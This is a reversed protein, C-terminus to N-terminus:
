PKASLLLVVKQVPRELESIEKIKVGRAVSRANSVKLKVKRVLGDDDLTTSTVLGLPWENRPSTDGVLLIVDGEQLNRQPKCWKERHQLNMLYEKKWASWFLECLHQVRRWRKRAYVDQVCFAGPPPLVSELRGHLLVNPTIPPEALPDNLSAPSLPRSNVIYAAEYFLTRLSSDDLRTNAFDVVSKLVNRVTRIQREWVGGHGSADPVNFKFEVQKSALFIELQETDLEAYGQKLENEGGIFNSGQDCRVTKVVGRLALFCRLANIFCDATLDDLLELHIARSYLCTFLLGYRKIESRAKKVKYPGFVDMGSKYFPPQVETREPPLNAMKQTEAPRRQKRCTVCNRIVEAAAKSGKQVYYGQTRLENMTLSRGGHNTRRHMYRIITETVHAKKPLIIPHRESRTLDRAKGIRGGVRIIGDEDLQPDLTRLSSVSSVVEGKKLVVIEGSFEKYQLWKIVLRSAKSQLAFRSLSKGSVKRLLVGLVNLITQWDSFRDLRDLLGTELPATASALCQAKVEPDGLVLVPDVVQGLPLDENVLFAPGKLWISKALEKASTGRSALDAPNVSTPVYQWQEVATYERIYQVRNSVFIHFRKADNAIYGLVVKSDTWFYEKSIPIELEKHLLQSIKVSTVAATLELRPVTVAKSPSVRSKSMILACEITGDKGRTRVYSCQGYGQLSADSFHHLQYEEVESEPKFCRPIKIMELQQVDTKWHEWRREMDADIPEDWSKKQKCLEQLIKRGPLIVPGAFGNPDYVSMVTSLIGRRTNPNDKLTIKFGFCDNQVDWRIGLTREIPLPELELDVESIAAAREAPPIAELVDKSNSIFKHLRIKGQKCVETAQHMLNKAKDVSPLSCLGDDMYLNRTLFKAGEPFSKEHSKALHKMGYNACGPSSAAGFLHVTLRYEVPQATFDGNPWWLFRLLDRHEEAVDFNYFMQEIDCALAIKDQRFRLLVGILSNMLDPGKLLNDNLCVGQCKASGDFVIRIKGPKHPHYVGQHPIYNVVQEPSPSKAPEAYGKEFMQEMFECYHERFKSDRMLKRKLSNLRSLAMGYNNPLKSNPRIPLPMTIKGKENTHIGNEMMKLFTLDDQSYSIEDKNECFDQDLVKLVDCPPPVILEKAVIRHCVASNGEIYCPGGVVSWGLDTKVAFAEQPGGAIIETPRLAQPCSYGILLGVPCDQMPPILPAINALHPMKRVAEKSPIHERNHPIHDRTYCSDVRVEVNSDYGRLKIDRFKECNVVSSSTLTTIKMKTPEYPLSLNAALEETIYSSDSQSDILAYTLVEPPNTQGTKVWVPLVMSTYSKISDQHAKNSVTEVPQDEESTEQSTLKVDAEKRELHLLTQHKRKCVNCTVNAQCKKSIHGPRLCKFCLRKNQISKVKEDYPLVKFADCKYILHKEGCYTCSLPPKPKGATKEKEAEINTAHTIGPARKPKPKVENEKNAGQSKGQNQPFICMPNTAVRAEKSVFDVFDQFSPYNRKADIDETVRRTWRNICYDPLKVVIEQIQVCDNLVELGKVYPIAEKLTRLFDSLDQLGKKDRGSVKPWERLKNRLSLQITFPHGFREELTDWASKYAVEDSGFFCGEVAAKAEGTLYQQLYYLKDAPPLGKSEVLSVFSKRFSIFKLPDGNFIPPTPVPLRSKNISDSFSQAIFAVQPECEIHCDEQRPFSNLPIEGSHQLEPYFPSAKPNLDKRKKPSQAPSDSVKVREEEDVIELQEHISDLAAKHQRIKVNLEIRKKQAELEALRRVKDSSLSSISANDRASAGNAKESAESHQSAKSQGSFESKHDLKSGFVSMSYEKGWTTKLLQKRDQYTMIPNQQLQQLVATLDVCMQKGCDAKRRMENDPPHLERCLNYAATLDIDLNALQDLDGAIDDVLVEENYSYFFSFVTKKVKNYAQTFRKAAKEVKAEFDEKENIVAELQGLKKSLVTHEEQIEPSVQESEGKAKVLHRLERLRDMCQTQQWKLNHLPVDKLAQTAM